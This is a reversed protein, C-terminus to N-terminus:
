RKGGRGLIKNLVNAICQEDQLTNDFISAFREKKTKGGVRYYIELAKKSMIGGSSVKIIVIDSFTWERRHSLEVNPLYRIRGRKVELYGHCRGVRHLHFVEFKIPAGKRYARVLYDEARPFNQLQFYSAGIMYLLEAPADGERVLKEGDRIVGKYDWNEFKKKIASLSVRPQPQPQPKPRPQPQKVHTAKGERRPEPPPPPLVTKKGGKSVPGPKPPTAGRNELPGPSAGKNKGITGAVDRGSTKIEAVLSKGGGGKVGSSTLVPTSSSSSLLAFLLVVALILAAASALLILKRKNPDQFATRVGAFSPKKIKPPTITIKKASPRGSVPAAAATQLEQLVKKVEEKLESVSSYRNEPKKQLCKLVIQDLKSPIEKRLSSPKPPKRELHAKQIEYDSGTESVFPPRGTLMEFLTVGLAYIDARTDVKKGLIQEPASYLPTGLSSGLRTLGEIGAVKAIGFDGIKAVGDKTILVNAPKIDRHIIGKKHAFEIASLVQLFIRLAEQLPLPGREKIIKKLSEGEIYEMVIYYIDGEQNFSYITVVNPHNLKAQAIAEIKFRAMLNPNRALHPAIIKIAVDRELTLDRALFVAGMGGEGIKKLIRYNGIVEGIM